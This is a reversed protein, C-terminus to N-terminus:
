RPLVFTCVEEMVAEGEPDRPVLREEERKWAREEQRLKRHEEVVRRTNDYMEVASPPDVEPEEPPPPAAGKPPKKAGKKAKKAADERAQARAAAVAECTARLAEYEQETLERFRRDRPADRLLVPTIFLDDLNLVFDLITLQSGLVSTRHLTVIPPLLHQLSHRSRPSRLSSRAHKPSSM